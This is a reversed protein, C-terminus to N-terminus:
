PGANDVEGSNIMKRLEAKFDDVLGLKAKIAPWAEADAKRWEDFLRLKVAELVPQVVEM